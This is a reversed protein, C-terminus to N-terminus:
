PRRRSSAHLVARDVEVDSACVVTSAIGQCPALLGRGRNVLNPTYGGVHPSGASESLAAHYWPVAAPRGEGWGIPLPFVQPLENTDHREIRSHQSEERRRSCEFGLSDLVLVIPVKCPSQM